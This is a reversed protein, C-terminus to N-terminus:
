SLRHQPAFRGAGDTKRRHPGLVTVAASIMLRSVDLPSSHNKRLRQHTSPRAPNLFKLDTENIFLAHGFDTPADSGGAPKDRAPKIGPTNETGLPRKQATHQFRRSTEV